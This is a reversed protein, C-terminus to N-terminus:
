NPTATTGNGLSKGRRVTPPSPDATSIELDQQSPELLESNKRETEDPSTMPMTRIGIQVITGNGYKNEIAEISAETLKGARREIKPADQGEVGMLFLEARLLWVMGLYRRRDGSIQGLPPYFPTLTRSIQDLKETLEADIPNGEEGAGEAEDILALLAPQEDEVVQDRIAARMAAYLEAAPPYRLGEAEMHSEFTIKERVTPIKLLFVPADPRDKLSDPTFRILDKTSIPPPM